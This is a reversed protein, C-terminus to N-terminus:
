SIIIPIHLSDPLTYKPFEFAILSFRKQVWQGHITNLSVKIKYIHNINKIILNHKSHKTPFKQIFIKSKLDPDCKLFIM